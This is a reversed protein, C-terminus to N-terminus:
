MWGRLRYVIMGLYEKMVSTTLSLSGTNPLLNVLLSEIEGSTLNEWGAQTTTYDTPAPIVEIGYHRFLAVSRPMHMASTVLLVRQAGREQLMQTSYLADENTNQSRDQMWVAEEPVGVLALLEQMEAAPTMTRGNYWTINGGSVLIVPATGEKYLRAAYLIRDGAGNVEVSPRPYQGSETGGGLVVIADAQPVPELPLYRWELSRALQFSIWRNSTVLLILVAATLLITQLRRKRHVLLALVTLFFVLGLPYVFLPLFKSLFIFM